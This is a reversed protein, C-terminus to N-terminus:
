ISNGPLNRRPPPHAGNAQVLEMAIRLTNLWCEHGDKLAKEGAALNGARCAEIVDLLTVKPAHGANTGQHFLHLYRLAQRSVNRILSMLYPSKAPGYFVQLFEDNLAMWENANSAKGRRRILNEAKELLKESFHPFAKHLAEGHLLVSVASIEQCEAYSIPLVLTGRHPTVVVYGETQLQRLADRMPIRSVGFQAALHDLRLKVGAPITGRCIAERLSIAVKIGITELRAL